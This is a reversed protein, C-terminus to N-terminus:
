KGRSTKRKKNGATKKNNRQEREDTQVDQKVRDKNVIKSARASSIKEEAGGVKKLVRDVIRSTKEHEATSNGTTSDFKRKETRKIKPEGRIANDFRGLSATATKSLRLSSELVRKRAEGKAYAPNARDVNAVQKAKNRQVRAKKDERAISRPDHDLPASDPIEVLWDAMKDNQASKYGWAPLERGSAEDYTFRSKKKNKIGKEKAFAEWKTLPKAKPIPRERPLVTSPLPLRALTANADTSPATPLAFIAKVLASVSREAALLLNRSNLNGAIDNADTATLLGADIQMQM